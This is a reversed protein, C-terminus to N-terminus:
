GHSPVANIRFILMMLIVLHIRFIENCIARQSEKIIRTIRLILLSDIGQLMTYEKCANDDKSTLVLLVKMQVILLMCGFM